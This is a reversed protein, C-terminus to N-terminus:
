EQSLDGGLSKNIKVVEDTLHYQLNAVIATVFTEVTVGTGYKCGDGALAGIDGHAHVVCKFRAVAMLDSIRFHFGDAGTVLAHHEAIGAVLGRSEHGHRNIERM